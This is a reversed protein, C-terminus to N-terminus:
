KTSSSMLICFPTGQLLCISFSTFIWYRKLYLVPTLGKNFSYLRVGLLTAVLLIIGTLWALTRRVLVVEAAMTANSNSETEALWRSSPRSTFMLNLVTESEPPSAGNFFIVGVIQSSLATSAHM